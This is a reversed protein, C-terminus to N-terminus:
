CSVFTSPRLLHVVSSSAAQKSHLLARATPAGGTCLKHLEEPTTCSRKGRKRNLPIAQVHWSSLSQMATLKM